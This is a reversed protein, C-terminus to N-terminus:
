SCGHNEVHKKNIILCYERCHCKQLGNPSFVWLAEILDSEQVSGRPIMINTKGETVEVSLEPNYETLSRVGFVKDLDYQRLLDALKQLFNAHGSNHFVPITSFEFEYPILQEHFVRFTRPVVFGEYKPVISGCTDNAAWPMSINRYDVLRENKEIQFHKHLLSIGFHDHVDFDLFLQRIPGLLYEEAHKNNFLNAAGRLSPLSDYAEPM